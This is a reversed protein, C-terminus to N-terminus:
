ARYGRQLGDSILTLGLLSVCIALGPFLSMWWEGTLLYQSGLNIMSGWEATPPVIGVGVFALGATLLIAYACNQAAAPLVPSMANPLMHRWVIKWDPVGLTRAADAYATGRLTIVRARVLRIYTPAQVFVIVLIIVMLDLVESKSSHSVISVVALAVILAPFAQLGDVFRMVVGDIWGRWYGVVAGVAVGVSVACITVGAAVVLDIRAGWMVRSLIDRGFNDTGFLHAASPPRNAVAINVANPSYPAILPSLIAVLAFVGLVLAGVFVAPRRTMTRAAMATRSSKLRNRYPSVTASM